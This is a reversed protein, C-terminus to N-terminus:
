RALRRALQDEYLSAPVLGDGKGVGEVFDEPATDVASAVPSTYRFSFPRSRVATAEGRTGIVYGWGFQQSNILYARNAMYREGNTNWFVSQTTTVGHYDPTGYPRVTADVYDRDLTLNDLLNAMSLHMHFDTALSPNVSKCQVIANGSAAMSKFDFAHRQRVATNSRLLNENGQLTFGYGNGGGGRYQPNEFTCEEVTIGRTQALLVGNSVLHYETTNVEPRFTAVRRIWGFLAQRFAIAHAGHVEYAGTGQRSYDEEGYGPLSSETNGISFDELGVGQIQARTKYVRANDRVRLAYRTPADLTITGAEGDVGMIRRYFIPGTQRAPTWWNTMQHEAIFENSADSRVVVWDGEKLSGTDRVKVRLTPELADEVVPTTSNTLVTTWSGGGLPSVRIIEKGRMAPTANHLFTVGAGAGRLIVHDYKMWLAFADSGRPAVRYVGAPLFVVGGGASGVADLAAQIAATSDKEGSPDAQYDVVADVRRDAGNGPGDPISEEGRAYGAYSFDHLFRGEADRFAPTWEEPYLSSRWPEQAEVGAVAVTLLLFRLLM